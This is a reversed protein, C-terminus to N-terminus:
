IEHVSLFDDFDAKLREPEAKAMQEVYGPWYLGDYIDIFLEYM